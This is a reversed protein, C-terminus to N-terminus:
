RKWNYSDGYKSSGTFVHGGDEDLRLCLPCRTDVDMGREEESKYTISPQKHNAKMPFSKKKAQFRYLGYKIGNAAGQQV